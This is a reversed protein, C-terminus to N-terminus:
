PASEITVDDLQIMGDNAFSDPDPVYDYRIEIRHSSGDAYAGINASRAEYESEFEAGLVSDTEVIQGDIRVTWTAELGAPPNSVKRWYNLRASGVPIVVHQAVSQTLADTFRGGFQVFGNGAHAQNSGTQFLSADAGGQGDSGAWFPPEVLPTEFGPDQVPQVGDFGDQFISDSAREVVVQVPVAVRPQRADSTTLCIWASYSGVALDAADVTVDVAGSSGGVASGNAPSAGLWAVDSPEVCDLASDTIAYTLTTTAAGTNAVTLVRSATTGTAVRFTLQAPGVSAAASGLNTYLDVESTPIPKGVPIFGGTLLVEGSTLVTAEHVFRRTTLRPGESWSGATGVDPDYLESTNTSEIDGPGAGGGGAVLVKGSPLLSSSHGSRPLALAPTAQWTDTAPDYLTASNLGSTFPEPAGGVVLVKGSLLRTATPQLRREPMAAAPSWTDSAPDYIEATALAANQAASYGGAVLVKGNALLAAVHNMRAEALPAATSWTGSAPDYIEVGALVNGQGNQFNNGGAVLVRGDALTAYAFRDRPTAMSGTAAWTASAPDYLEASAVTSDTGGGFVLVRGSALRVAGHGSRAEIMAATTAWSRQAPDYLFANTGGAVLVQDSPLVTASHLVLAQPMPAVMEFRYGAEGRVDDWPLPSSIPDAAALTFAGGLAATLAVVALLPSKM